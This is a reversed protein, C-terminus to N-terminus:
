ETLYSGKRFPLYAIPGGKTDSRKEHKRPQNFRVRKSPWRGKALLFPLSAHHMSSARGSDTMWAVNARIHPSIPEHWRLKEFPGRAELLDIVDQANAGRLREIVDGYALVEIGEMQKAVTFGISTLNARDVINLQRWAQLPHIRPHGAARYYSRIDKHHMGSRELERVCSEFDQKASNLSLASALVHENVEFVGPYRRVSGNTSDVGIDTDLVAHLLQEAPEGACAEGTLPDFLVGRAVAGKALTRSRFEHLAHVFKILCLNVASRGDNSQM